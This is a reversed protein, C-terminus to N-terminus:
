LSRRAILFNTIQRFVEEYRHGLLAEDVLNEFLLLEVDRIALGVRNSPKMPGKGTAFNCELTHGLVPSRTV